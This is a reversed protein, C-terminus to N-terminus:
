EEETTNTFISSWGFFFRSFVNFCTYVLSSRHPGQYFRDIKDALQAEVWEKASKREAPLLNQWKKGGTRQQFFFLDYHLFQQFQSTELLM